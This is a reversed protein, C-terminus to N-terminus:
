KNHVIIGGAIFIDYDEISIAYVDRKNTKNKTISEVAIETNTDNELNYLMIIDGLSIDQANIYKWINNSKVLIPQEGSFMKSIDENFYLTFKNQKRIKVIKSKLKETFTITESNWDKINQDSEDTYELFM